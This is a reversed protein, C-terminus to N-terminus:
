ASKRDKIPTIEEFSQVTAEAFEPDNIHHPLSIVQRKATEKVGSTIAEFLAQNAKPVHFPQGPADLASIGGEPLLLRVPGTMQNVKAAIWSGIKKNEEITTRMLTVQPNHEVFQRHQYKEPISARAGFNVMDVAGVSGVWPIGTRIFAGFRDEDAAFVGGVMMDCVETTTLDIAGVLMNSDVLKEMSRGGTGTAHFVLCDYKDEIQNIIQQVAPTTVGFMTIGLGPKDADKTVNQEARSAANRPQKMMGALAHAGNALVQKSISNLGQIDTVSYLMCIDSPGVYESVDGSAVTSIMVKPIGVSLSRMAPTVLATGGSGGASIIGSIDRQHRMWNSFALSMAKISSGRDGSFVTSSGGSYYGAIIHAPIDAQSFGGSTSLDVTIVEIGMGIICDRIYNLEKGKTDFTGVVYTSKRTTAPRFRGPENYIPKSQSDFPRLKQRSSAREARENWASKKWRTPPIYDHTPKATETDIPADGEVQTQRAQENAGAQQAEQQYPETASTDDLAIEEHSHRGVGLLREQLTRDNALQVSSLVRGIRGNVMIAIDQSVSTAVSINQEILLISMQPDEALELLLKQVQDVILPALGETPEDLVLLEPDQLLARSIALMQQEGGSLQAASNYRREALRPFTNYIRSVSWAGGSDMLRLHEDVTLSPWLRRGQPTYGIGNAAIKYPPLGTLEQGNFRISGGRTPVLGMIANCLTTKGMGNRGVVAHIGGKLELDIGQLAHSQGYYVQLGRIQLGQTRISKKRAMGPGLISNNYKPIM